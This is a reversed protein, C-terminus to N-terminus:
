HLLERKAEKKETARPSNEEHQEDIGVVGDRRQASKDGPEM